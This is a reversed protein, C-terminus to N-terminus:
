EASVPKEKRKNSRSELLEGYGEKFDVIENRLWGKYRNIEVVPKPFEEINKLAWDVWQRTNDFYDAVSISSMLVIRGNEQKEAENKLEKFLQPNVETYNEINFDKKVVIFGGIQM